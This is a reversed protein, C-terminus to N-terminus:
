RVGKRKRILAAEAARVIAQVTLGAEDLLEKYPGSQGFSDKIGVMEIPVPCKRALVEAVASGLGGIVNHEEVTVLAGTVSAARLLTTEDLPKVTHMEIVRTSVQRAELEEAAEIARSLVLGNAVLTVDDGLRM